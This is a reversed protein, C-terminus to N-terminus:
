MQSINLKDNYVSSRFILRLKGIGAEQRVIDATAEEYKQMQAVAGALKEWSQATDTRLWQAITDMVCLSAQGFRNARINSLISQKIMLEQGLLEWDADSFDAKHLVNLINKQNLEMKAAATYFLPFTSCMIALIEPWM